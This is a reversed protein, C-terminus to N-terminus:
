VRGDRTPYLPVRKGTAYPRGGSVTRADAHPGRCAGSGEDLRVVDDASQVLHGHDQRRRRLSWSGRRAVGDAEHDVKTPPVGTREADAALPLVLTLLLGGLIQRRRM